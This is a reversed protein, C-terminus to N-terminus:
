LFRTGDITFWRAAIEKIETMTACRLALAAAPQSGHTMM